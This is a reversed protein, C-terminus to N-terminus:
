NLLGYNRLAQRLKPENEPRMPSLPLRMEPACLGLLGMATKIGIPNSELFAAKVLPLM